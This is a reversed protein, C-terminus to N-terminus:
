NQPRIRNRRVRFGGYGGKGGFRVFENYQGSCTGKSYCLCKVLNPRKSFKRLFARDKHLTRRSVRLCWRARM